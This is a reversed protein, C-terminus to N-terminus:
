FRVTSRAQSSCSIKSFHTIRGPKPHEGAGLGGPSSTLPSKHSRVVQKGGKKTRDTESSQRKYPQGAACWM